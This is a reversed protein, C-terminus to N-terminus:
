LRKRANYYSQRSNFGSELAVEDVDARPNKQKYDEAHALRCRNVYNFFGGLRENLIASVYTRNCGCDQSLKGLTLHSDLYAQEEEVHHRILGLIEEKRDPSLTEEAEPPLQERNADLEKELREVEMARHPSLSGLLILVTLASLVFLGFSMAVKNGNFTTSWSMVLHLFPIYVLSKAYEAPFDDPDSFSEESFRGLRQIIMRLAQALGLLYVLAMLGGAVFYGRLFAGQMQTGPLLTCVLAIFSMTSYTGSLVYIPKRWWSVKLVKGFYSFILVSCLFPSSLILMIRIQLIADPEGPLFVAPLLVLNSLCSLAYARWGPYYYDLHKNYPACKHGWRVVGAMVCVAVYVALSISLLLEQFSYQIM